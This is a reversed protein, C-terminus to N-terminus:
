VPEGIAHLDIARGQLVLWSRDSRTELQQALLGLRDRFLGGIPTAPVVGM